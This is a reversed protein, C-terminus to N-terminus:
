PLIIEFWDFDSSSGCYRNIFGGAKVSVPSGPIHGSYSDDNEYPDTTPESSFFRLDIWETRISFAYPGSSTGMVLVYYTGPSLTAGLGSYKDAMFTGGNDNENIFDGLDGGTTDDYLFLWTDPNTGANGTPPFTEFTLSYSRETDDNNYILTIAANGVTLTNNGEDTETVADTSDIVAYIYVCQNIDLDDPVTPSSNIDATESGPIDTTVDLTGLDTDGAPTLDSDTSLYYNIKFSETVTETGNNKVVLSIPLNDGYASHSGSLSMSQISLDKTGENILLSGRGRNNAEDSETIINDPDAEAFIYYTGSVSWQYTTSHSVSNGSTIAAITYNGILVDSGTELTNDASLYYSISSSGADATGNNTTTTTIDFSSGPDIGSQPLQISVTLDPAKGEPEPIEDAPDPNDVPPAVPNWCSLFLSFATLVLIFQKLKELM